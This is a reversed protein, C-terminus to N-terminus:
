VRGERGPRGSSMWASRTTTSRSTTAENWSRCSTSAPLPRRGGVRTTTPLSGCRDIPAMSAGCTGYAYPAKVAFTTSKVGAEEAYSTDYVETPFGRHEAWRLYMRQLNQAWGTADAGGAQANITVLAEREDYEGSLLTRTELTVIAKRLDALEREAEKRTPTDDETEALEFLVAVDDLRQRLNVSHNLRQELHSLRTTVQQAREQDNWLDPAAAQEGLTAIERRISDLDLVSELGSLTADLEKIEEAPGTVAM